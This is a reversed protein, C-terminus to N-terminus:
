IPFAVVASVGVGAVGGIDKTLNSGTTVPLLIRGRFRGPTWDLQAVVKVKAVQEAPGMVQAAGVTTGGGIKIIPVVKTQGEIAADHQSLASNIFRDIQGSYQSVVWGIGFIKVLDMIGGGLSFAQTPPTTTFVLGALFAVTILLAATKHWSNRSNM